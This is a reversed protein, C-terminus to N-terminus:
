RRAGGDTAAGSAGPHPAHRRLPKDTPWKQGQNLTLGSTAAAGQDHGSTQGAVPGAFMAILTAAALATALKTRRITTM